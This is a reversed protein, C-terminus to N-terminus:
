NWRAILWIACAWDWWRVWHIPSVRWDGERIAKTSELFDPLEGADFRKQREARAALLERRRGDFKRHLGALFDLAEPTLIEAARGEKAGRVEIAPRTAIDTM